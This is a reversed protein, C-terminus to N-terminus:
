ASVDIKEAFSRAFARIRRDWAVSNWMVERRWMRGNANSGLPTEERVDRGLGAALVLEERTPAAKAMRQARAVWM